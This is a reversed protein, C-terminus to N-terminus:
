SPWKEARLEEMVQQHSIAVVLALALMKHTTLWADLSGDWDHGPVADEFHARRERPTAAPEERSERLNELGTPFGPQVQRELGGAVCVYM